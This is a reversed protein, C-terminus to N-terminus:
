SCRLAADVRHRQLDPVAVRPRRRGVATAPAAPMTIFPFVPTFRIGAPGFYALLTSPIFRLSYGKGGTHVPLLSPPRKAAHLASGDPLLRDPVRIQGPQPSRRRGAARPRRRADSDGLSPQPCRTSRPLVVCGRPAGRDCLGLRDPGPQARGRAGPAWGPSGPPRQTAGHRGAARVPGWRYPRHEVRLGRRVGVPLSGLVVIVSGALITAMVVGYSTAEVIGLPATGRVITRVRWLLLASFFATVVWSLLLSPATLRGDLSNTFLFVPMRLLSPFLGFYTYQKGAHLFAEPGISNTPVALHGHMMSRAQLDYFDNAIPASRLTDIAGTWLDWLVWLYPVAAVVTGASVAIVFRRRSRVPSRDGTRSGTRSRIAGETESSALEPEATPVATHPIAM